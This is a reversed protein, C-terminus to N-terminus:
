LNNEIIIINLMNSLEKIYEKLDWWEIKCIQLDINIDALIKIKIQERALQNLKRATEKDPM